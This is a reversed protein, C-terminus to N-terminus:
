KHLLCYVLSLLLFFINNILDTLAPSNDIYIIDYILPQEEPYEPFSLEYENNSIKTFLLEEVSYMEGTKSHTEFCYFDQAFISNNYLLLLITYIFKLILFM